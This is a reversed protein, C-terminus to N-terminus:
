RTTMEVLSRRQRMDGKRVCDKRLLQAMHVDGSILVVPSELALVTDFLRQQASPFQSWSEAVNGDPFRNAHVQLGNVVVNVAARSRRISKEFWQWQKEGLFDGEFDSQFRDSGRKWPSKSTRVDLVFVAVTQNSYLNLPPGLASDIDIGAQREPVEQQDVPRAFDFLKVGYVGEGALARQRMGSLEPAAIFDVFAIGSEYKFEYNKDANNCGYDHDQL